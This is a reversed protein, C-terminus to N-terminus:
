SPPGAYGTCKATPLPGVDGTDGLWLGHCPPRSERIQDPLIDQLVLCRLSTADNVVGKVLNIAKILVEWYDSVNGHAWRLGEFGNPM